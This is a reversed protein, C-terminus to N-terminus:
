HVLPDLAGLRADVEQRLAESLHELSLGLARIHPGRAGLEAGEGFTKTLMAALQAAGASGVKVSLVSIETL